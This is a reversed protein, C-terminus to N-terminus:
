QAHRCFRLSSARHPNSRSVFVSYGSFRDSMRHQKGAFQWDELYRPQVSDHHISLLLDAGRAAAARARLDGGPIMVVTVGRAELADRVAQVLAQNFGFEPVGRASAAGSKRPSHGVDLAITAATASPV